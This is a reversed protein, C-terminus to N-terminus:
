AKVLGVISSTTVQANMVFPFLFAAFFLPLIRKIKMYSPKQAAFFTFFVRFATLNKNVVELCCNPEKRQM